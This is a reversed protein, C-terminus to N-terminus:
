KTKKDKMFNFKKKAGMKKYLIGPLNSNFEKLKTKQPKIEKILSKVDDLKTMSSKLLEEIDIDEIAEEEKIEELQKPQKKHNDNKIRINSKKEIPKPEQQTQPQCYISNSRLQTLEDIFMKIQDNLKVITDKCKLSNCDVDVFSSNVSEMKMKLRINEEMFTAQNRNILKEVDLQSQLHAMKEDRRRLEEKLKEIEDEKDKVVTKLLSFSEGNEDENKYTHAIGRLKKSFNGFYSSNRMQQKEVDFYNQKIKQSIEYDADSLPEGDFLELFRLQLCVEQKYLYTMCLPNGNLKLSRLQECKKLVNICDFLSDLRNTSLDVNKLKKCEALASVDTISNNALELTKLSQLMDVGYISTIHNNSLNLHKLHVFRLFGNLNIFANVSADIKKVCLVNMSDIEDGLQSLEQKSIDLEDDNKEGKEELAQKFQFKSLTKGLTLENTEQFEQYTSLESVNQLFLKKNYLQSQTSFDDKDNFVLSNQYTTKDTM